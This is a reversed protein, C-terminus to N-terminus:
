LVTGTGTTAPISVRGISRSSIDTAAGFVEYTYAVGPVLTNDYYSSGNSSVSTLLVGDRTVAFDTLNGKEWMIEGATGSYRSGGLVGADPTETWGEAYDAPVVGGSYDITTAYTGDTGTSSDTVTPVSPVYSGDSVTALIKGDTGIAYPQLGSSFGYDRYNWVDGQAVRFWLRANIPGSYAFPVTISSSTQSGLMLESGLNSGGRASGVELYYESNPSGNADWEFYLVQNAGFSTGPDSSIMTPGVGDTDNGVGVGAVSLDNFSFSSFNNVKATDNNLIDIEEWVPVGWIGPDAPMSSSGDSYADTGDDLVGDARQAKIGSNAERSIVIYHPTQPIRRPDTERQYEVGNVYWVLMNKQWLLTFKHVGADLDLDTIITNLDVSGAPTNGAAAGSIVKSQAYNEYGNLKDVEPTDIEVGRTGDPDYSRSDNEYAPLLYFSMRCAQTRMQTLDVEWEFVSGPGWTRNPGNPDTVHYGLTNDYTRAWTTLFPLEIRYDEPHYTVGQRTYPVRLPNTADVVKARLHLANDRVFATDQPNLYYASWRWGPEGNNGAQHLGETMTDPQWRNFLTEADMNNFEDCWTKTFTYSSGFETAGITPQDGSPTPNTATALMEEVITELEPQTLYLGAHDHTVDAKSNLATDVAVINNETITAGAELADLRASISVPIVGTTMSQEVDTIRNLASQVSSATAGGAATESSKTATSFGKKKLKKLKDKKSEGLAGFSDM